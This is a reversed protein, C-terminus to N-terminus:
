PEGDGALSSISVTHFCAYAQRRLHPQWPCDAIKCPKFESLSSIRHATFDFPLRSRIAKFLVRRKARTNKQAENM